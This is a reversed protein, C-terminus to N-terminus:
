GDAARWEHLSRRTDFNRGLLEAACIDVRADRAHGIVEREVVGVGDRDRPVDEPLELPRDEPAIVPGVRLWGCVIGFVEVREYRLVDSRLVVHMLDYRSEDVSRAEVLELRQIPCRDDTTECADFAEADPDDRVATHQEALGREFGRM